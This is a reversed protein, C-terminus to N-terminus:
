ADVKKFGQGDNWIAVNLCRCNAGGSCDDDPCDYGDAGLEFEDGDKRACEACTNRDLIASREMHSLDDGYEAFFQDRGMSFSRALVTGADTRLTKSEEVDELVDDVVEDATGNRRAIDIARDQIQQKLRNRIKNTVLQTQAKVLKDVRPAPAEDPELPAPTGDTKDDEEEEAALLFPKEYASLSVLNAPKIGSKGARRKAALGAPQKKKEQTATRYGYGRAREIFVEVVKGLLAANLNLGTLESPDGDAMAERIAPLAGRLMDGVVNKVDREFEARAATHFADMEALALHQETDRLPRPPTFAPVVDSLKTPASNEPPDDPRQGVSSRRVSGEGIPAPSKEEGGPQPLELNEPPKDGGAIPPLGLRARAENTTLLGYQFHYQYLKSAEASTADLKTEKLKDETLPDLGLRERIKNQDELTFDLAGAAKLSSVATSFEGVGLDARQLTLVLKPYRRQPGWNADVIKRVLGTYKRSGVGNLAAEINVKVGAVFAKKADEHTDGVSRSGTQSTGLSMQHAHLVRLIVEGLKNYADVLHQKNHVASFVWELKVGPPLVAGAKEHFRINEVLTELGAMQEASLSTDKEITALPVGLAEREHGVAIIKLTQERIKAIYHVPRFASYGAYNNGERGWTVLLLSEAPLKIGAEWKGNRTGSQTVWSLDGNEEHWPNVELSSPLRQALKRLYVGQGGPAREDERVGMVVEDLCFGYTLPGKVLHQIVEGWSPELWELFNDEVYSAIQEGAEDDEGPQVSLKADRLPAAVLELAAACDPDTRVLREWEGWIANVGLGARDKLRANNETLLQGTYNLTGSVGIEKSERSIARLDSMSLTPQFGLWDKVGAIVGM